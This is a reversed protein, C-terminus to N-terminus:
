RQGEAGRLKPSILEQGPRGGPANRKADTRDFDAGHLQELTAREGRASVVAQEQCGQCGPLSVVLAAVWWCRSLLERREM